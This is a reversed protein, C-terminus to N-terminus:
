DTKGKLIQPIFHRSFHPEPKPHIIHHRNQQLSEASLYSPLVSQDYKGNKLLCGKDLSISCKYIFKEQWVVLAVVDKAKQLDRLLILFLNVLLKFLFM